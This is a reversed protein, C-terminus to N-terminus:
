SLSQAVQQCIMDAIDKGSQESSDGETFVSMIYTVDSSRIIGSSNVAWGNDLQVWGDKLYVTSGNPATDGIGFRQDAEVGQMLSLAYSTWESDLLTGSYISHLLEVMSLPTSTSTGWTDQEPTFGSIGSSDLFSKLGQANGAEQYLADASDNDSNDIMLSLEQTENSTLDRGQQEAQALIAAMIPVKASSAMPFTDKDNYVYYENEEPIYVAVGIASSQQELYQQLSPSLADISGMGAKTSSGATISSSPVWGTQTHAASTWAIEVWTDAGITQSKGTLKVPFNQDLHAIGTSSPPVSLVATNNKNIRAAPNTSVSATPASSSSVSPLATKKLRAVYAISLWGLLLSITLLCMSGMLYVPKVHKIGINASTYISSSGKSKVKSSCETHHCSEQSIPVNRKAQLM